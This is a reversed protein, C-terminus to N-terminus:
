CYLNMIDKMDIEKCLEITDYEDNYVSLWLKDFASYVIGICNENCEFTKIIVIKGDKFAHTKISSCIIEILQEDDSSYIDTM